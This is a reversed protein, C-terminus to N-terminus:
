GKKYYAIGVELGREDISNEDTLFKLHNAGGLRNALCLCMADLIDDRKVDKRLESAVIEEYVEQVHQDYQNLVALREASGPATSKKTQLIRGALYKFCFEPHSEYIRRKSNSYAETQLFDDVEKIKAAINLSQESLSKGTIAINRKRAEVKDTTQIAARVPANFVTSSRNGLQSRMATELTRTFNESTLGIPIDVLIRSPTQLIDAIEDFRKIIKYGFVDNKYYILIWGARCGDIGGYTM